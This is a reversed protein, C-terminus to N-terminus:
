RRKEALVACAKLFREQPFDRLAWQPVLGYHPLDEIRGRFYDRALVYVREWGWANVDRFPEIGFYHRGTVRAVEALAQHRVREMQELALVTYVLDFQSDAFPLAVANGQRFDVRRFATLDQLPEPAFRVLHAPLREQQQLRRAAEYGAETLEIGSFAIHPFRCALLVLHIGLGCGVELVSAPQLREILRVLILQRFRVGGLDAAILREDAWHWPRYRAPAKDPDYAGYGLRPWLESYEEIVADFHRQHRPLWGLAARRLGRRLIVKKRRRILANWQQYDVEIRRKELPKM